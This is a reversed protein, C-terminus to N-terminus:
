AASRGAEFSQFENITEEASQATIGWDGLFKLDLQENLQVTTGQFKKTATAVCAIAMPDDLEWGIDEGGPLEVPPGTLACM